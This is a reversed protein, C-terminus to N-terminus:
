REDRWAFNEAENNSRDIANCLSRCFYGLQVLDEPDLSIDSVPKDKGDTTLLEVFFGGGNSMCHVQVCREEEVPITEDVTTLDALTIQVDEIGFGKPLKAIYPAM